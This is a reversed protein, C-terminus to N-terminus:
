RGINEETAHKVGFIPLLITFSTGEGEKSQVHIRGGDAELIRLCIALGLGTGEGPPKTSYFPDFIKGLAEEPIGPGTDEVEVRILSLIGRPLPAPSIGRARLLSYDVTPSDEKRRRPLAGAFEPVEELPLGRTSVRLRYEKGRGASNSSIMADAANLFLNIM